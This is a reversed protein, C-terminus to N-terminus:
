RCKKDYYCAFCLGNYYHEMGCITCGDKALSKEIAVVGPHGEAIFPKREVKMLKCLSQLLENHPKLEDM